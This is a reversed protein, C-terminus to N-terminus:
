AVTPPPEPQVIQMPKGDYRLDCGGPEIVLLEAAGDASRYRQGVQLRPGARPPETAAEPAENTKLAMPTAGDSLAGPGARTVIVEAGGASTFRDGTEVM